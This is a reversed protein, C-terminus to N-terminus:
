VGGFVGLCLAFSFQTVLYCVLNYFKCNFKMKNIFLKRTGSSYFKCILVLISNLLGFILYKAEFGHWVSILCFLFITCIIFSLKVGFNNSLLIKYLPNFAYIRFFNTISINWRSWLDIINSSLLPSNFNRKIEYGSLYLVGSTIDNFGSFSFYLYLYFIVSSVAYKIIFDNDNIYFDKVLDLEIILVISIYFVKFLGLNIEILGRQFNRIKKQPIFNPGSYMSVLSLSKNLYDFFNKPASEVLILLSIFSLYSLGTSNISYNNLMLREFIILIFALLFFSLYNKLQHKFWFFLVNNFLILTPTIFFYKSHQNFQYSFFYLGLILILFLYRKNGLMSLLLGGIGISLLAWLESSQM